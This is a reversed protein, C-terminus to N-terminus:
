VLSYLIYEAHVILVIACCHHACAKCVQCLRSIKEKIIGRVMGYDRWSKGKQNNRLLDHRIAHHVQASLIESFM